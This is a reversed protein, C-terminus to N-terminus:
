PLYEVADSQQQPAACSTRARDVLVTEILDVDFLLRGGTDLCPVRGEM